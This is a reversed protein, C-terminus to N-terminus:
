DEQTLVKFGDPFEMVVKRESEQSEYDLHIKAPRDCVLCDREFPIVWGCSLIVDGFVRYKEQDIPYNFVSRCFDLLAFIRGRQEPELVQWTSFEPNRHPRELSCDKLFWDLEMYINHLVSDNCFLSLLEETVDRTFYAPFEEM